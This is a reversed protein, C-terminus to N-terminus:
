SCMQCRCPCLSNHRRLFSGPTFEDWTFMLNWPNEPTGPHLQLANAFIDQLVESSRVTAAVLMGPDAVSWRHEGGQVLPLSISRKVANFRAHAIRNMNHQGIAEFGTALQKAITGLHHLSVGKGNVIGKIKEMVEAKRSKGSPVDTIRHKGSSTADETM